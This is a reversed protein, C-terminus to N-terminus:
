AADIEDLAAALARDVMSARPVIAANQDRFTKALEDDTFSFSGQGHRDTFIFRTRRPSVWALKFNVKSGDARVFEVWEGREIGNVLHGFHDLRKQELKRARSSLERESARQAANVAMEVQRRSSLELPARIIAAHRDALNSFFTIREPENWKIANLWANITSLLAPLKTLLKKRAEPSTKPKLSWILDDMVNRTQELVDPKTESVCHAMTLIRTWQAELFVEVFGAVEGSEIRVAVDEEALDRARQISEQRMALAIPEALVKESAEEEEAIFGELDSVAASFLEIQQEFDSQVREVIREIMKYLPDDHGKGQDWAISSLALADLLRRAPHDERFFFDKDILTAKLLPIQLGGILGRMDSPLSKESFVFDFIKALLEITNEDGVTLAGPPAQSKIQRLVNTGQTAVHPGSGAGFPGRQFDSLYRM